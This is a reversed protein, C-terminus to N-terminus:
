LIYTLLILLYSTTVRFSIENNSTIIGKMEAGRRIGIGGLLM